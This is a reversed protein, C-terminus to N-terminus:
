ASSSALENLVIVKFFGFCHFAVNVGFRFDASAIVLRGLHQVVFHAVECLGLERPVLRVGVEDAVQPFFHQVLSKVVDVKGQLVLTLRSQRL